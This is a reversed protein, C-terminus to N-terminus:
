LVGISAQNQGTVLPFSSKLAAYLSQFIAHRQRYFDMSRKQPSVREKVHITETCAKAVSDWVGAGVGALLAAGFASSNETDVTVTKAQYCNAQLQRWFRSKAGGGACRVESVAMGLSRMRLIQDTMGFTIGEIVARAMSARDHERSLGIWCARAFPDPYPCREGDLYPLFYLNHSGPVAKEARAMMHEFVRASKDDEFLTQRLWELSGGASLMTGFLCWKGSVAHCFSQMIGGPNPAITESHAFVVGSTGITASVMGAKVIGMGVASAAQDGAGAVVPIGPTLGLERASSKSLMGAVESSEYLPPLLENDIDLRSLLDHSWTRKGIDLLLTGSADAVDSAFEGTLCFRIYDKPLLIKRVKEYQHPEMRRLWLIKPATFGTLAVNNTVQLLKERGGARETIEDCERHTRQDNWLLARRISRNGSDLFVSGHMQGSLGIALLEGEKIAASKVLNRVCKKTALWWDQPEQENWGPKPSYLPHRASNERVIEGSAKCLLAKTSTTGIDIGLLYQGANKRNM